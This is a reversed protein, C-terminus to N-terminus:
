RSRSSTGDTTRVGSEVEVTPDDTMFDAGHGALGGSLDDPTTGPGSIDDYQNPAAGASYTGQSQYGSDYAGAGYQGGYQQGGYQQGGYRSSSSGSSPVSSKLFRAAVLGLAFASGLFVASNRRAFSEAEQVLQDATRGQLYSSFGDLRDAATSLATAAPGVNQSQLNEGSQRLAQSIKSAQDTVQGKQTEFMSRAQDKAQGAVQGATQQTQQLAQQSGQKVQDTIPSGTDSDGTTPPLTPPTSEMIMGRELSRRHVTEVTPM